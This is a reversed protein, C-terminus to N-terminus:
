LNVCSAIILVIDSYFKRMSTRSVDITLMMVTFYIYYVHAAFNLSIFIFYIYVLLIFHVHFM